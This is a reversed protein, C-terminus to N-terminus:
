IFKSFYRFNRKTSKYYKNKEYKKYNIQIKKIPEIINENSCIITEKSIYNNINLVKKFIICKKLNNFAQRTEYDNIMKEFDNVKNEFYNKGKINRWYRQILIVKNIYDDIDNSPNGSNHNSTKNRAKKFKRNNYQLRRVMVISRQLEYLDKNENKNEGNNEKEKFTELPIPLLGNMKNNSNIIDKRLDEVFLLPSSHRYRANGLLKINPHKDDNNKKQQVNNIIYNSLASKNKFLINEFTQSYSLRKRKKENSRKTQNDNDNKLLALLNNNISSSSNLFSNGKINNNTFSKKISSSNQARSKPKSEELSSTIM